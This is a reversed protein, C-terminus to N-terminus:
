KKVSELKSLKNETELILVREGISDVKGDIREITTNLNDVSRIFRSIFYVVISLLISLLAQMLEIKM